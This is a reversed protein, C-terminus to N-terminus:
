MVSVTKKPLTIFAEHSLPGQGKYFAVCLQCYAQFLLAGSGWISWRGISMSSHTGGGGWFFFLFFFFFDNTSEGINEIWDDGELILTKGQSISRRLFCFHIAVAPTHAPAMILSMSLSILCGLHPSGPPFFFTDIELHEPQSFFIIEETGKSNLM